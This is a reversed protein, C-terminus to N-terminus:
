AHNGSTIEWSIIPFDSLFFKWFFRQQILLSIKLYNELFFYLFYRSLFWKSFNRISDIHILFFSEQYKPIKTKKKKLKLLFGLLVKQFFEQLFKQIFKWFFEYLFRSFIRAHTEKPIISSSYPFNNHYEHSYEPIINPSVRSHHFKLFLKNLNKSFIWSSYCAAFYEQFIELPIGTYQVLFNEFSGEPFEELAIELLEELIKEM